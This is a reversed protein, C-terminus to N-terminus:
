LSYYNPSSAKDILDTNVIDGHDRGARKLINRCNLIKAFIINSAIPLCKEEDDSIRYQKKRLLVNGMVPGNVRALFQGYENLFTLGVGRQACMGMLAPSAGTYGFCVIGEVNHVPIRFKDTGNCSVVINEGDRSLYSDPSTIYLVNLLKRM